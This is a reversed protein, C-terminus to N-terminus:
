CRRCAVVASLQAPRARILERAAVKMTAGSTYLDDVLLIKKNKLIQKYAPRLIFAGAVNGQREDSRVHSQFPRHKIRVLADLLHTGSEHAIVRAIETAQNYGRTAYRRWHLPIPIVYDFPINRIDTLQWILQGLQASAVHDRRSKALVLSKLPERYASASFLKVQYKATVPITVTALPQM